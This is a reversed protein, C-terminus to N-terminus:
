REKLWESDRKREFTKQLSSIIASTHTHTHEKHTKKTLM